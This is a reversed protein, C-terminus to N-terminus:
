DKTTPDTGESLSDWDGVSSRETTEGELRVARYKSSAAPWRPATVVIAAGVLIALSGLIITVLPWASPNTSDVLAAVSTAGTVGTAETIAASSAVVPDSLAITGSIAICAGILAELIGLVIRFVPGAISLAAVLALGALSLAALAPAAIDGAIELVHGDTLTVTFWQQTWALLALLSLVGAATIATLKRRRPTM